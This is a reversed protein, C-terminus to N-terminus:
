KNFRFASMIAQTRTIGTEPPRVMIPACSVLTEDGLAGTANDFRLHRCTEGEHPLQIQGIRVTSPGQRVNAQEPQPTASSSAPGARHIAFGIAAAFACGCIVVAKLQLMHAHSRAIAAAQRQHALKETNLAIHGVSRTM